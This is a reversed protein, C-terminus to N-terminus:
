SSLRRGCVGGGGFQSVVSTPGPVTPCQLPPPIQGLLKPGPPAQEPGLRLRLGQM